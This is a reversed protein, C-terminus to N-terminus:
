LNNNQLVFQWCQWLLSAQLWVLLLIAHRSLGRTMLASLSEASAANGSVAGYVMAAFLAGLCLACPLGYLWASHALGGTVGLLPSDPHLAAAALMAAFLVAAALFLAAATPHRRPGDRLIGCGDVAGAAVLLAALVFFGHGAAAEPCNLFMWRWGEDSLLSQCGAGFASLMWSVFPTAVICAALALALIDAWGRRNM